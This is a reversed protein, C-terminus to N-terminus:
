IVGELFAKITYSPILISKSNDFQFIDKAIEKIFGAYILAVLYGDKDFVGSGSCGGACPINGILSNNNESDIYYGSLTGQTYINKLGRYEGVSYINDQISATKIGKIARKNPIYGVIRILSLDYKEDNKIIEFTYEKEDIVVNNLYGIQGIGKPAVHKNTLIYTFDDTIKIIIGTGIWELFFNQCEIRVSMSKLYTYTPKGNQIPRNRYNIISFISSIILGIILASILLPIIVYDYFKKM